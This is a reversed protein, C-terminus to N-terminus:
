GGASRPLSALAAEIADFVGTWDGRARQRFLRATPYWPSDSRDLMWRWDPVQKLAVWVPRGLAGALHAVATDTTIVLDLSMMAAASDLFAQPGSDFDEGLTEVVMAEPLRDLQDAGEGKQLSILRIAPHRALGQLASVPFFRDEGGRGVSGQWCIGIRFGEGGIARAWRETRDPDAFLYPVGAPITKLSTGFALPLSLLPCHVDFDLSRDDADVIDFDGAMTRILATLPKDPAFLVRAGREGLLPIYRCFQITDGFGQEDHVLITKGALDAAGLWSPRDFARNGVALARRKRWEYDPLGREFDGALLRYLGRNHYADAYGPDLAIAQDYCREVEGFRALTLLANARNSWSQADGPKLALARDYSSLAEDFRGLADLAAGRNAHAEAYDPALAIARDYSALAEDFQGLAELAVGRNYSAAADGPKLALVQDYSARAEDFRKAALLIAGRNAWAEAYGPKLRVARDYSALAEDLRKLSFLAHGRNYHAEPVNPNIAIARGLRDAARPFDGTQAAILGLFYNAPFSRRDLRLADEYHKSAAALEGRQHFSLGAAVLEDIRSRGPNM